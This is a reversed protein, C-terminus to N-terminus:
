NARAGQLIAKVDGPLADYAHRALRLRRAAYGGERQAYEATLTRWAESYFKEPFQVALLGIARLLAATAITLEVAPPLEESM